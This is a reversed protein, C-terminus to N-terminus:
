GRALEVACELGRPVERKQGKGAASACQQVLVPAQALADSQELALALGQEVGGPLAESLGLAM